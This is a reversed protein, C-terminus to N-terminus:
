WVLDGIAAIPQFAKFVEAYKCGKRSGRSKAESGRMEAKRVYGALMAPQSSFVQMAKLKVDFTGSIDVYIDPFYRSIETMHPEFGFIPTQRPSVPNGDRWGAASATVCARRVLMHVDNHDPNFADYDSHTLIVAPRFQRIVHALKEIHSAEIPMPYDSLGWLKFDQVGLIEAARHGEAERLAHGEPENAGEQKWYANAEGRLGDSLIIVRIESGRAAYKAITGGCRWVFDGMHAAVVLIRPTEFENSM